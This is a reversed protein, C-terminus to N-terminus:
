INVAISLHIIYPTHSYSAISVAEPTQLSMLQKVFHMLVGPWTDGEGKCNAVSSTKSCSM